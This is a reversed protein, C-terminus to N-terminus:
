KEGFLPNKELYTRMKIIYPHDPPFATQIKRGEDSEIGIIEFHVDSVHALIISLRGKYLKNAPLDMRVPSLTKGSFIYIDLHLANSIYELLTVSGWKGSTSLEKRFKDYPLFEAIALKKYEDKTLAEGLEERLSTTYIEKDDQNLSMYTTNFTGLIAHFMCNGDAGTGIHVMGDVVWPFENYIYKVDDIDLMQLQYADPVEVSVETEDPIDVDCPAIPKKIFQEYTEKPPPPPLKLVVDEDPKEVLSEHKKIKTTKETIIKATVRLREPLPIALYKLVFEMRDNLTLNPPITPVVLNKELEDVDKITMKKKIQEVDRKDVNQYEPYIIEVLEKARPVPSLVPFEKPSDYDYTPSQQRLPSRLKVIPTEPTSIPSELPLDKEGTYEFVFLTYLISLANQSKSLFDQRDINKQRLLTYGYKQFKNILEAPQVLWELQNNVTASDLNIRIATGYPPYTDKELMSIDGMFEISYSYNQLIPIKIIRKPNTESIEIIKNDWRRIIAWVDGEIEVWTEPGSTKTLSLQNTSSKYYKLRQSKVEYNRLVNFVNDGNLTIAYIKTKPTALKQITSLLGDIYKENEFFFTLCFFLTVVDAEFSPLKERIVKLVNETNQAYDKILHINNQEDPTYKKLRREFESTHIKNPDITVVTQKNSLWKDIDAGMGGGIDLINASGINSLIERKVGNHHKRYLILDRGRLTEERLPDMMQIWTNIVTRTANPTNKDVRVRFPIFEGTNPKDYNKIIYKFEIILGTEVNIGDLVPEKIEVTGSHPYEKDTGRFIQLKEDDISYLKFKNTKDIREIMFDITILEAPKWKLTNQNKYPENVPTLIIGDNGYDSTRMLELVDNIRDYFNGDIWHKKVIFPPLRTQSSADVLIKAFSDLFKLREVLSMNILSKGQYFLIDFALITKNDLVECDVLTGVYATSAVDSIKNIETTLFPDTIRGKPAWTPNILYIGTNGVYLQYRLGDAKNTIAYNDLITKKLNNLGLSVPKNLFFNKIVGTYGQNYVLTNVNRVVDDKEFLTYFVTTKQITKYLKVLFHYIDDITVVSIDPFEIEIEHTLKDNNQRVETFDIRAPVKRDDVIREDMFSDRRKYRILDPDGKIIFNKHPTETSVRLRFGVADINVMSRRDKIYCKKPDNDVCRVRDYIYDNIITQGLYKLGVRKLKGLISYFDASNIGSLFQGRNFVGVGLELEVNVDSSSQKKLLNTLRLLEYIQSDYKVLPHASM